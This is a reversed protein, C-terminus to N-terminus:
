DTKDQLDKIKLAFFASKQPYKLVLKQYMEIAKDVRGQQALLEALTESIIGFDEAKGKKKRKGPKAGSKKGAGKPIQAQRNKAVEELRHLWKVFDDKEDIRPASDVAKHLRRRSKDKKSRPQRGPESTSIKKSKATSKRSTKKKKQAIKAPTPTDIMEDLIWTNILDQENTPTVQKTRKRVKKKPQRQEKTSKGKVVKEDVVKEKPAKKHTLENTTASRATFAALLQRGNSSLPASFSLSKNQDEVHIKWMASLLQLHESDPHEKVLKRLKGPPLQHLDNPHQLYHDIPQLSWTEKM